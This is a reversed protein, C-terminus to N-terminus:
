SPVNFNEAWSRKFFFIRKTGSSVYFQDMELNFKKPLLSGLSDQLLMLDLIVVFPSLNCTHPAIDIENFSVSLVVLLPYICIHMYLRMYLVTCLTNIRMCQSQVSSCHVMEVLIFLHNTKQYSDGACRMHATHVKAAMKKLTLLKSLQVCIRVKM